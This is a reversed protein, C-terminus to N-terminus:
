EEDELDDKKGLISRILSYSLVHKYYYFFGLGYWSM